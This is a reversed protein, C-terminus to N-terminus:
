IKILLKMLHSINRTEIRWYNANQWGEGEHGGVSELGVLSEVRGDPGPEVLGVPESDQVVRVVHEHHFPRLLHHEDGQHAFVGDVGGHRGIDVHHDAIDVKVVEDGDARLAVHLQDEADAFDAGGAQRHVDFESARVVDDKVGLGRARDAAHVARRM